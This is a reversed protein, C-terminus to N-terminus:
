QEARPLNNTEIFADMQQGVFLRPDRQTFRYIAQLVRTDVKESVSNTTNQKNVLLPAMKVFELGFETGRGRQLFAIAPSEPEFYPSDFQNISVRLHLEDTNGVIMMPSNVTDSSPMEGKHIKIQLVTADIPSRITTREIDALVRHINAKAELVELRAIELDPKWTGAKTKDLEAKAQLAKAYSQEYSSRRRSVEQQSVARPDKLALVMEYQGKANSLEAQALALAAESFTVDESRPLAELKQLKAMANEYTVQRSSLDAQLDRDELLVLIEGRRVKQGVTVLVKDVIRNVPAGILINESSPEVIGAGYIYSKYPPPPHSVFQEITEAPPEDKWMTVAILLLSAAALVLITYFYNRNM